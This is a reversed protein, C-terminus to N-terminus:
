LPTAARQQAAPARVALEISPLPTAAATSANDIDRHVITGSFARPTLVNIATAFVVALVATTLYIRRDQHMARM